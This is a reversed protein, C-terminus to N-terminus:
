KQLTLVGNELINTRYYRVLHLSVPFKEKKKQYTHAHIFFHLQKVLFIFVIKPTQYAQASTLEEFMHWFKVLTNAQVVVSALHCYAM